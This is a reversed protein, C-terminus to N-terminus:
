LDPLVAEVGAADVAFVRSTTLRRLVDEREAFSDDVFLAPTRAAVYTAKSEGARVYRMGCASFLGTLWAKQAGRTERYQAGDRTLFTVPKGENLAHVVLAALRPNVKGRFLFTDDVDLYLADWRPAESYRAALPRHMTRVLCNDRVQLPTEPRLYEWLTLLPLNVGNARALAAGGGIRPAVELLVPAGETNLKAQFFWAGRFKLKTALEAAWSHLKSHLPGGLVRSTVTSIGSRTRRRERVGVWQLGQARTSFCEVTYEAGPLYETVLPTQGTEELARVAARLQGWSDVRRYVGQSGQGRDPRVFLPAEAPDTERGPLFVRPLRVSLCGELYAYTDGKSRSCALNRRLAPDGDHGGVVRCGEEDRRNLQYAVEDHCPYVWEWDYLVALAWLEELTDDWDALQTTPLRRVRAPPLALSELDTADSGAAFLEVTKEDRLARLVERGLETTAPWVLVRHAASM